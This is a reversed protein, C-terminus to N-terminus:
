LKRINKSIIINNNLNNYIYIHQQQKQQQQKLNLCQMNLYHHKEQNNLDTCSWFSNLFSIKFGYQM